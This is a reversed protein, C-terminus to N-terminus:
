TYVWVEVMPVLLIFVSPCQHLPLCVVCYCQRRRCCCKCFLLAFNFSLGRSNISLGAIPSVDEVMFLISLTLSDDDCREDSSTQRQLPQVCHGLSLLHCQALWRDCCLLSTELLAHAWSKLSTTQARQIWCLYLCKLRIQTSMSHDVFIFHEM